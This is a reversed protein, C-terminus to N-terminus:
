ERQRTIRSLPASIPLDVWTLVHAWRFQSNELWIICSSVGVEPQWITSFQNLLESDLGRCGDLVPM